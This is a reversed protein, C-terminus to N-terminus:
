KEEIKEKKVQEKVLKDSENESNIVNVKEEPIELDQDVSAL